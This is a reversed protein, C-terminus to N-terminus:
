KSLRLGFIQNDLLKYSQRSMMRVDVAFWLKNTCSTFRVKVISQMGSVYTIAEYHLLLVVELVLTGKFM